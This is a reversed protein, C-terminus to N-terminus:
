ILLRIALVLAECDVPKPLWAQLGEAMLQHRQVEHLATSLMIVPMEPRARRLQRFLTIGVGDPLLYDLLCLDFSEDAILPEAEAITGVSVIEHAALCVRILQVYSEDDEVYLIRKRPADM